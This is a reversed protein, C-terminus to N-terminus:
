FRMQSKVQGFLEDVNIGKTQAVNRVLQELENTNGKQALDIANRFMPNSMIQSNGLVQNILQQPNRIAQMMQFIDNM